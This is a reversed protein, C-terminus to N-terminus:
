LAGHELDVAVEPRQERRELNRISGVSLAIFTAIVGIVTSGLMTQTVGVHAAIVGVLAYGLSALTYTGM